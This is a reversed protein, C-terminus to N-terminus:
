TGLYYHKVLDNNELEAVSAHVRLEFWDSSV